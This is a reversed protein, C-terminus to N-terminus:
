IDRKVPQEQIDHPDRQFKFGMRSNLPLKDIWRKLEDFSVYVEEGNLFRQQKENLVMYETENVARVIHEDLSNVCKIAGGMPDIFEGDITNKCKREITCGFRDSILTIYRTGSRTYRDSIVRYTDTGCNNHYRRGVIFSKRTNM